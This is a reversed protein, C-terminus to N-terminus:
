RSASPGTTGDLAEALPTAADWADAFIAGLEGALSGHRVEIVGLREAPDTPHPVHLYASEGDVLDVSVTLDSAVRVAVDEIDDVIARRDPAPVAALVAPSVLTRVSLDGDVSELFADMEAVYREWPAQGYPVAMTSRITSEAAEFVEGVLSIAEDSGVPAAWFRSETPVTASLESSVEAAIAEYREARAELEQTREALLREVAIDPEVARYSRPDTDSSQVLNRAELGNLVDYIRGKPVGSEGALESATARGLTLLTRYAKEEYGSLGLEGLNSM